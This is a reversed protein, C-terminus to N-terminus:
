YRLLAGISEGAAELAPSATLMEVEGGHRMVDGVAVEVVDLVRELKEGCQPCAAGGEVTLASCATCQYGPTQYGSKVVLTQVRDSGVAGLTPQLGVVGGANKGAATLLHDVVRAERAKEAQQGIEIARALVENHTATMAFPASGVVLSQWSKPLHGRFLAVNDDTGGILIRRVHNAEFFHAAFDAAERMNRDVLEDEYNTRGAIGGMRGPFSSAGGRKTHKVEEGLVGEQEKLEGLHFSFLRAGQKDVLVVGYGGFSDLLDALPKVSAHEGAYILNPVPVALPYARFFNRPACSFVAVGRGTWQYEQNFYHEIAETDPPLDVQKLMNRLRLKYADANGQSPETNLYVSLILEPAHFEVLERLDNETLM